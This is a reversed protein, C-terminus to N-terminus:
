AQELWVPTYDFEEFAQITSDTDHSNIFALM